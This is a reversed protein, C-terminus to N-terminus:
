NYDILAPTSTGEFATGSPNAGRVTVNIVDGAHASFYGSNWITTCGNSNGRTGNWDLLAWYYTYSGNPHLVSIDVGIDENVDGTYTTFDVGMEVMWHDPNRTGTSAVQFGAYARGPNSASNTGFLWGDPYHCSLGSANTVNTTRNWCGRSIQYMTWSGGNTISVCQASANGAVVTGLLVFAILTLKKM